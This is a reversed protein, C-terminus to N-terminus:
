SICWICFIMLYFFYGIPSVSWFILSSCFLLSALLFISTFVVAVSVLPDEEETFFSSFVAKVDVAVAELTLLNMSLEEESSSWSNVLCIMSFAPRFIAWDGELIGREFCVVPPPSPFLVIDEPTLLKAVILVDTSSSSSFVM